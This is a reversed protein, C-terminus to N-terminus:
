FPERKAHVHGGALLRLLEDLFDLVDQPSPVGRNDKVDHRRKEQDTLSQIASQRKLNLDTLHRMQRQVTNSQM